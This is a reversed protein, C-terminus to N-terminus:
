IEFERKNSIFKSYARYVKVFQIDKTFHYLKYNIDLLLRDLVIDYL